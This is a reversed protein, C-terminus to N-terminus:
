KVEKAWSTNLFERFSLGCDLSRFLEMRRQSRTTKTPAPRASEVAAKGEATLMFLYDGGFLERRGHRIMLGREWLELCDSWSHHGPGCVYRNRYQNGRGNDDLGLSHRLIHLHKDTINM